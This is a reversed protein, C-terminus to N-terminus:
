TDADPQCTAMVTLKLARSRVGAMVIQRAALAKVFYDLAVMPEFNPSNRM